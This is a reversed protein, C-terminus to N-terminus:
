AAPDTKDTGEIENAMVKKAYEEPTEEKNGTGAEAEGGLTTEVKLTTAEANLRATETNAEEIRAAAANAASIMDEAKSPKAEEAAMTAATKRKAELKDAAAKEERIIREAETEDAM